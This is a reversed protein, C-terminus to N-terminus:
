RTFLHTACFKTAPFNFKYINWYGRVFSARVKLFYSVHHEIIKSDINSNIM